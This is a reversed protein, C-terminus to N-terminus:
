PIPTLPGMLLLDQPAGTHDVLGYKTPSNAPDAYHWPVVGIAATTDIEYLEQFLGLDMSQPKVAMDYGAEGIMMHKCTKLIGTISSYYTSGPVGQTDYSSYSCYGRGGAAGIQALVTDTAANCYGHCGSDFMSYANFEPAQILNISPNAAVFAAVAQDRYGFWTVLGAAAQANSENNPHVCKAAFAPNTAYNYSSGCYVVNDGEWNSLIFQVNRGAFRQQLVNFLGTYEAEIAAQHAALNYTDVYGNNSGGENLYATFDLATLIVTTLKPNDWVPSDFMVQAYCSLTKIGYCPDPTIGYDNAQGPGLKFRIATFGNNLASDVTDYFRQIGVHTDIMGGWVYAGVFGEASAAVPSLAFVSALAAQRIMAHNRRFPFSTLHSM